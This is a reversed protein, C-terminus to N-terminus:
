SSILQHPLSIIYCTALFCNDDNNTSTKKLFIHKEL